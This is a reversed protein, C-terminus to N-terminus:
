DPRPLRLLGHGIEWAPSNASCPCTANQLATRIQQANWDAHRSWLLAALAGAQPAAASTGSFPRARWRSPFPVTAVLDPKAAGHKPGCSSYVLRRGTADAAGVAIVECGDGPFPISGESRSYRLSGGLVVLHFEGAGGKDGGVRPPPLHPPRRVRVRYEHGPEPMFAVVASGAGGRDISQTRGVITETSADSVTVEYASTSPCCLEVSVRDSGWPRISNERDAAGAADRWVHYGDGGDEFPGSWHRQATNGASAFFLADGGGGRGGGDQPPSPPALLRVLEEHVRGHGECDSWSPMIISCSIIRAGQRRAWRVAALFQDPCEPEWNALLLEAEPALTHIVEACLIGHESDKAELNGDFRFSCVQVTLPLTTGLHAQYGHFGTDLVAV